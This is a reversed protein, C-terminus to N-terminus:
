PSTTRVSTDHSITFTEIVSGDTRRATVSAQRGQIDIELHHHTGESKVIYEGGVPGSVYDSAGGTTLHQVGNVNARAYYHNHGAIVLDIGYKLCLPQIYEQVKWDNEHVGGASWGPMHIALIKWPRTAASLDSVLWQYQPSGPAYGVYQDFIIIHAPGYDFSWYFDSVYPYPYYKRFVTGAREHNGRPGAVPIRALFYLINRWAHSFYQTDWTAEDDEDARDGACIALTQFSPDRTFVRIMSGCVEDYGTPAGQPDSFALLKVSAAHADPAGRFSGSGVGDVQYYYLTGTLLGAVTYEYQTDGHPDIVAKGSSYNTTLGWRITCTRPVNLKWLVTMHAPDGRYILYPGKGSHRHGSESFVLLLAFVITLGRSIKQM